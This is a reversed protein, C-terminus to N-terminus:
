VCGRKACRKACGVEPQKKSSTGGRAICHTVCQDFTQGRKCQKNSGRGKADVHAVATALLAALALGAVTMSRLM